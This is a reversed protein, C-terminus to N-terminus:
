NQKVEPKDVLAFTFEAETVLSKNVFAEGRVKGFREKAKLVEVKLELNDGPLVPKRFKVNEISMFYAIKDSLDPRCLFLVAATQAMAEVILVGPMIPNGPFHGQFFPENGSVSKYGTAKKQLENIVVKDIMLFPYRHPIIKQITSLELIDGAKVEPNTMRVEKSDTNQTVLKKLFNINHRHGSKVATIKAKLPRGLTYLDGILDLIKHRVFEDEFRLGEKNHIKNLGIIITNSLDGGRGLKKNKIAEIEYDFCFTRAPAIEKLFIEPTLQTTYRQTKIIPHDYIITFDIELKDSPEAIISVDGNVYEVKQTLEFYNKPSSQQLIGVKMISEAYLKSSGDLAPPESNTLHIYINDIEFASLTALVHEVTHVYVTSTALTTGRLLGAINNFNVQIKPHDPLDDRVFVIGTNEFAPKFTITTDNGTHLGPGSLSFEKSITKQYM